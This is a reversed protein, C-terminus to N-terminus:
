VHARGIKRVRRYVSLLLRMRNELSRGWRDARRNTLPSLFQNVLYGHAAHIQIADFNAAVARRAAQGFDEIIQEIEGASLERALHGAQGYPLASPALPPGQDLGVEKLGGSHNIQVAIKGGARHTAAVAEKLGPLLFDEHIGTMWPHARGEASVSAHGTIILGVGGEALREYLNAAEPLLSGEAAAMREATASRVFRNPLTLSNITIPQFLLSMSM